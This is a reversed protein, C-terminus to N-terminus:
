TQMKNNKANGKKNKKKKKKKEGSQHKEPLSVNKEALQKQIMFDHPPFTNPIQDPNGNWKLPRLLPERVLQMHESRIDLHSNVDHPSVVGLIYIHPDGAKTALTYRSDHLTALHSLLEQIFCLISKPAREFQPIKTSPTIDEVGIVRGSFPHVRAVLVSKSISNNEAAIKGSFEKVRNLILSKMWWKSMCGPDLEEQGLEPVYELNCKVRHQLSDSRTRLLLHLSGLKWMSYDINGPASREVPDPGQNEQGEHRLSGVIYKSMVTRPDVSSSRLPKDLLVIGQHVKLPLFYDEKVFGGVLVDMYVQALFSMTGSSLGFVIQDFNSTPTGEPSSPVGTEVVMSALYEHALEVMKPDKSIPALREKELISTASLTLPVDRDRFININFNRSNHSPKLEKLFSIEVDVEL